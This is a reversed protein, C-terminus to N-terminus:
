GLQAFEGFHKEAADCYAKYAEIESLHYGLHIRKGYVRITSRWKRKEKDWSVGKYKSTWRGINRRNWQNQANNCVRLNRRRNDLTDHNIHDVLETQKPNMIWRHLRVKRKRGKLTLTGVVYFTNTNPKHVVGWTGPFENVRGLDETDIITELTGYKSTHISIAVTDGRIEFPNKM